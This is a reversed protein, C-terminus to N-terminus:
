PRAYPNSKPTGNKSCPMFKWWSAHVPFVLHKFLAVIARPAQPFNIGKWFKGNLFGTNRTIKQGEEELSKYLREMREVGFCRLGLLTEIEDHLHQTLIPGFDDILAVIRNGDYKETEALCSEIYKHFKEFGPLFAHHQDVNAQMIGPKGAMEEVGPFFAEEEGTHHSELGLVFCKAFNCFAKQDQKSILPAQIYIANLARLFM